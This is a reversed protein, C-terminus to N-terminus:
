KRLSLRPGGSIPGRCRHEEVKVDKSYLMITYAVLVANMELDIKFWGGVRRQILVSVGVYLM